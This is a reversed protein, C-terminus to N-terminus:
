RWFRFTGTAKNISLREKHRHFPPVSLEVEWTSVTEDLLTIDSDRSAGNLLEHGMLLAQSKTVRGTGRRYLLRRKQLEGWERINKQRAESALIAAQDVIECQHEQARLIIFMLYFDLISLIYNAKPCSTDDALELLLPVLDSRHLLLDEDQEMLELDEDYAWRRVAEADIDGEYIAM